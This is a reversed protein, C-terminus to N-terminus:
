AGKEASHILINGLKRARSSRKNRRRADNDHQANGPRQGLIRFRPLQDNISTSGDDCKQHYKQELPRLVLIRQHQVQLQILQTWWPALLRRM